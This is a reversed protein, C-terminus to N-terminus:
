LAQQSGQGGLPTDGQGQPLLDRDLEPSLLEGGFLGETQHVQQGGLTVFQGQGEFFGELCLQESVAVLVALGLQGSEGLQELLVLAEGGLQLSEEM